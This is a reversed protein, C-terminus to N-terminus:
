HCDQCAEYLTEGRAADGTLGGSWATEALTASIAAALMVAAAYKQRRRVAADTSWEDRREAHAVSRPRASLGRERSANPAPPVGTKCRAGRFLSELFRLLRM